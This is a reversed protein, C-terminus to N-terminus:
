LWGVYSEASAALRCPSLCAQVAPSALRVHLRRARTDGAFRAYLEQELARGGHAAAGGLRRQGGGCGGLVGHIYCVCAWAGVYVCVSVRVRVRVRVLVCLCVSMLGCAKHRCSGEDGAGDPPLLIHQIHTHTHTRAHTHTHADDAPAKIALRTMRCCSPWSACASGPSRVARAGLRLHAHVGEQEHARPDLLRPIQKRDRHNLRRTCVGDACVM